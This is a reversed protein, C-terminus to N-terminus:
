KTCIACTLVRGKNYPPCSIGGCVVVTHELLAGNNDAALGPVAESEGDVCVYEANRQHSYRETMLYGEYERTWSTPCQIKGPLLMKSARNPVHCVACPVNQNNLASMWQPREYESGYIFAHGSGAVPTRGYDPNNPMCVYEYFGGIHSYHGGGARGSYLLEAGTSPCQTRGWRVYVAGGSVIELTGPPGPPGKEGPPGTEGQKGPDGKVGDIGDEGPPADRGDRGDRGRLVAYSCLSGSM